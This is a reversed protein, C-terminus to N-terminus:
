AKKRGKKAVRLDPDYKALEEGKEPTLMRAYTESHFAPHYFVDYGAEPKTIIADVEVKSVVHTVRVVAQEPEEVSPEFDLTIVYGDGCTREDFAM